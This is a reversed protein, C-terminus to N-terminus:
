CDLTRRIRCALYHRHRLNFRTLTKSGCLLRNDAQGQSARIDVVLDGVGGQLQPEDHLQHRADVLSAASERCARRGHWFEFEVWWPVIGHRAGRNFYASVVGLVLLDQQEFSDVSCDDFRKLNSRRVTVDCKHDMGRMAEDSASITRVRTAKCVDADEHQRAAGECRFPPQVAQQGILQFGEAYWLGTDEDPQVFERWFVYGNAPTLRHAIDLKTVRDIDSTPMCIM